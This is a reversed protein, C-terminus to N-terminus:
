LSLAAHRLAAVAHAIVSMPRAPQETASLNPYLRDVDFQGSCADAKETLTASPPSAPRFGATVAAAIPDTSHSLTPSSVVIIM